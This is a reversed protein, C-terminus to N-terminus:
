DTVLGPTSTDGHSGVGNCRFFRMRRQVPLAVKVDPYHIRLASVELSCWVYSMCLEHM